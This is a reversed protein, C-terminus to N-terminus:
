ASGILDHVAGLLDELNMPKAIFREGGYRASEAQAQALLKPDTSTVIIPTHRTAPEAQLRELLLWSTEDTVALDVVLLDPHLAVIEDFTAAGANTTTVNYREDQLLERVIDLFEPSNNVAFVHRRGARAQDAQGNCM